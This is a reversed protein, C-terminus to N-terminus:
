DKWFPAFKAYSPDHDRTVSLDVGVRTWIKDGTAPGLGGRGTAELSADNGSNIAEAYDFYNSYDAHCPDTIMLDSVPAVDGTETVYALQAEDYSALVTCAEAVRARISAGVMKPVALVALVGMIVIAVLLEILTFGNVLRRSHGRSGRM